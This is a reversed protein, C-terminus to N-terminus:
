LRKGLLPWKTPVIGDLRVNDLYLEGDEILAFNIAEVATLKSRFEDEFPFEYSSWEDTLEIGSPTVYDTSGDSNHVVMQVLLMGSGKAAFSLGSAESIDFYAYNDDGLEREDEGLIFGTLAFHNDFEEDIDAKFYVHVGMMEDQRFKEAHAFEVNGYFHSKGGYSSDTFFYTPGVLGFTNGVVTRGSSWDEYDTLLTYVGYEWRIRNIIQEETFRVTRTTQVQYIRSEGNYEATMFHVGDPLNEFTFGGDVDTTTERDLITLKAGAVPEGKNAIYGTVAVGEKAVYIGTEMNESFFLWRMSYLDDKQMEVLNFGSLSTNLKVKGDGDLTDVSVMVLGNETPKWTRVIGGQILDISRDSMYGIYGHKYNDRLDEPDDIVIPEDDIDVDKTSSSSSKFSERMSSGFSDSVSSSSKNTVNHGDSDIVAVVKGSSDDGCGVLAALLTTASVMIKFSKM